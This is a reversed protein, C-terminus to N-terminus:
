KIPISYGIIKTEHSTDLSQTWVNFNLEWPIQEFGPYINKSQM